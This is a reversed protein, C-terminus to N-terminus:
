AAEQLREDVTGLPLHERLALELYTADYVSLHHKEALESIRGFALAAGEFDVAFNLARLSAIAEHREESRLKRRRELILLANAVELFLLAPVVLTAGEKLKLLIADTRESAQQPHIWALALSADIV